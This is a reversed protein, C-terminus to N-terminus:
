QVSLAPRSHVPPKYLSCAGFSAQQEPTTWGANCLWEAGAIFDSITQPKNRRRGGSHWADGLESGGRINAFAFRFGQQLMFTIFTSFAPTVRAGFGGYATLILPGPSPLVYDPDWAICIPVETGDTSRYTTQKTEVRKSMFPIDETFVTRHCKAELDYRMLTPPCDFSSYHYYIGVQGPGRRPHFRLTGGEPYRIQDHLNGNLDYVTTVYGQDLPTTVCILNQWITCETLSEPIQSLIVEWHEVEPTAADFTVIQREGGDRCALAYCKAGIRLFGFKPTKSDNILRPASDTLPNHLYLNTFQGPERVLYAMSDDTWGPIVRARIHPGEGAFYIETEQGTLLDLRFVARYHPRSSTLREHAHYAYSGDIGFAIGRHFGRSIKAPLVERSDVDLFQVSCTDEGGIKEGLAVKKGDGSVQLLHLTRTDNGDTNPDVLTVERDDESMMLCPQQQRATRKMYFLREKVQWPSEMQDVSLMEDVRARIQARNPLADMYARFTANQRDTWARVEPSNGDELWRFPDAIPVGHYYDVVQETQDSFM